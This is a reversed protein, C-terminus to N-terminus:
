DWSSSNHLSGETAGQGKSTSGYSCTLIFNLVHLEYWMFYFNSYMYRDAYIYHM